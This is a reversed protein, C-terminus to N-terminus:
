ISTQVVQKSCKLLIMWDNLIQSLHHLRGCVPETETAWMEQYWEHSLQVSVVSDNWGSLSSNDLPWDSLYIQRCWVSQKQLHEVRLRWWYCFWQIMKPIGSKCFARTRLLQHTSLIHRMTLDYLLKWVDETQQHKNTNETALCCSTNISKHWMNNAHVLIEASRHCWWTDYSLCSLLCIWILEVIVTNVHPVKM